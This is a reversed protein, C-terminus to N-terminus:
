HTMAVLAPLLTNTGSAQAAVQKLVGTSSLSYLRVGASSDYGVAVLYAGTNDVALASVNSPGTFPSGTTQTLSGSTGISYSSITGSGENAAFAYNYTKNLTIGRPATGSAQIAGESTITSGLAYVALSSTRAIYAYDNDDLVVSFDGTYNSLSFGSSITNFGSGTIGSASSYTFVADGSTGLAVVAYQESPSVAVTCNQSVPTGTGLVCSVGPLTITSALTLGGTSTNVQYENMTIGDVDVTFLWNGDPSVTMAAVTDTALATGSHAATLEGGSAINYLFVGPNTSGPASAVYLFSNSPAVALAVPVYGLSLSGISTLSGGGVNYESLYTTGASSNAVYAFDGTNTTSSTTTTTTTTTTNPKVFFNACGGLASLAFGTCGCAFLRLPASPRRLRFVGFLSHNGHKATEATGQRRM